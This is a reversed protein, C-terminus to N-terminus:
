GLINQHLQPHLKASLTSLKACEFGQTQAASSGLLHSTLSSDLRCSTSSFSLLELNRKAEQKLDQKLIFFRLFMSTEYSKVTYLEVQEINNNEALKKDILM